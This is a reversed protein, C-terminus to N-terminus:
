ETPGRVIADYTGGRQMSRREKALTQDALMCEIYGDIVRETVGQLAAFSAHKKLRENTSARGRLANVLSSKGFTPHAEVLEVIQGRVEANVRTVCPLASPRPRKKGVESSAGCAAGPAVFKGTCVDCVGCADTREGFHSTLVSQFCEEGHAYREVKSLQLPDAGSKKLRIWDGRSVLLVCESAKGDRGARGAEQYYRELNRSPGYHVVTRVDPKNIGMGFAITACVVRVDDSLFSELVERREDDSMGAHYPASRFDSLETALVEAENRTTTYVIAPPRVLSRVDAYKGAAPNGVTKKEVVRFRLNPRLFTGSVRHVNRLRLSKGIMAVMEPTASATLAIVPCPTPQADRINGLLAYEPRFDGGWDCICHAEDIAILSWQQESSTAMKMAREPTAYVIRAKDSFPEESLNCASLGSRKLAAVQDQMLSILPSVVLVPWRAVTAIAQYCLSKGGGTAITVLVDQKKLLAEIAQEQEPRLEHGWVRLVNNRVRDM